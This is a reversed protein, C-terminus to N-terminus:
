TNLYEIAQFSVAAFTETVGQDTTNPEGLAIALGGSGGLAGTEGAQWCCGGLTRDAQILATTADLLADLDDQAQESHAARSRHFVNVTVDYQRRKQGGHPGGVSARTESQHLVHVVMVAGSQLGNGPPDFLSGPITKPPSRFLTGLGYAALSSGQYYQQGTVQPGGLYTCIGARVSARSM